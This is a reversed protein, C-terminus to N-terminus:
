ARAEETAVRWRLLVSVAAFSFFISFRINAVTDIAEVIVSTVDFAVNHGAAPDTIAGLARESDLLKEEVGVVEVDM